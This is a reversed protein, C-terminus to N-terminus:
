KIRTIDKIIFDNTLTNWNCFEIFENRKTINNKAKIYFLIRKKKCKQCIIESKEFSANCFRCFNNIDIVKKLTSIPLKLKIWNSLTTSVIEGKDNIYEIAVRDSDKKASKVFAYAMFPSGLIAVMILGFGLIDRKYGQIIVWTFFYLYVIAFVILLLIVYIQLGSIISSDFM